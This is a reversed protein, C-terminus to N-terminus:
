YVPHPITAAIMFFGALGFGANWGLKEGCIGIISIGLISGLNIVLYLMAFGSDLLKKRNLYLKGFNAITNPSYLGNGLVVLALGGYLGLTSSICLIFAGLAQLIGGAIIAKRNGIILDGLIAGILSSFLLLATFWAYISLAEDRDMNLSEGIMFLIIIARLGYFSAREFFKSICYYLSELNREKPKSFNTEDLIDM